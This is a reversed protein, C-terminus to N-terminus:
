KPGTTNTNRVQKTGSEGQIAIHVMLWQVHRVCAMKIQMETEHARGMREPREDGEAM